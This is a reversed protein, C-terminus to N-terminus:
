RRTHVRRRRSQFSRTQRQDKPSAEQPTQQHNGDASHSHVFVLSPPLLHKLVKEEENRKESLNKRRRAMEVRRMQHEEATLHKKVQVETSHTLPPELYYKFLLEGDPLALLHGSGGEELRARQRKTLKTLDPTSARSGDMPTEDDSDLEEEEEADEEVEIMEEDGEADEDDGAQMGEEEEVEEGMDSDLESLEEDDSGAEVEKREVTKTDVKPPPKVVIASKGSKAKSVTIIPAPPPIDMDIDGDADEEREADLDEDDEEISEGEADDDDVVDDMPEDEDEESESELVYSKRVNRSRKGEIVQGDLKERSNVSITSAVTATVPSSRTAERLKTSSTKVTLRMSTPSTSKASPPGRSVTAVAIQESGTGRRPRTRTSCTIDAIIEQAKTATARQSRRTSM